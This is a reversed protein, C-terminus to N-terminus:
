KRNWAALANVLNRNAEPSQSAIRIYEEELGRFNTADRVLLRHERVLYDKLAAAEGQKLQLLFFTTSSPQVAYGELQSLASQLQRSRELAAAMAPKLEDYQKFIYKGAEIALSNVSWPMKLTKLQQVKGEQGLVYGLRLGPICFLKTLSRVVLLNNFRNLLSVCSEAEGSFDVYAEDVVFTTAPHQQLQRELVALSDTFGDPNNPNCVFVLPAQISTTAFSSRPFSDFSIEHCTCADEYEAFTPIFLTASQRAFAQAILYFAETAGNTFLCNEPELGHHQAALISLEEAAPDPYNGTKELATWLVELLRPHIGEHWVNSSFNHNIPVTYKYADDGHGHLM